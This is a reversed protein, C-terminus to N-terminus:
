DIAGFVNVGNPDQNLMEPAPGLDPMDIGDKAETDIEVHAPPTWEFNVDVNGYAPCM